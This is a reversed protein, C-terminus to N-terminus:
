KTKMQNVHETNQWCSKLDVDTIHEPYLGRDSPFPHAHQFAYSSKSKSTCQVDDNVSSHVTITDSFDCATDLEDAEDVINSLSSAVAFPTQEDPTENEFMAPVSLDASAAHRRLGASGATSITASCSDAFFTTLKPVNETSAKVRKDKELRKAHGSAHTRKMGVSVRVISIHFLYVVLQQEIIRFRFHM